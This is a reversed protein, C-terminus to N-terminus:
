LPFTISYHVTGKAACKHVFINFTVDSFPLFPLEPHVGFYKGTGRQM